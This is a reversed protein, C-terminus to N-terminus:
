CRGPNFFCRRCNEMDSVKSTKVLGFAFNIVTPLLFIIVGAIVRTILSKTSKALEDDNSAIVAKFYDIVGFLILLIPVVVKAAFLLSGFFHFVQRVKEEDCFDNIKSGEEGGSGSGGGGTSKDVNNCDINNNEPFSCNGSCFYEYDEKDEGCAFSFQSPNKSYTSNIITTSHTKTNYLIDQCTKSVDSANVESFTGDPYYALYLGDYKTTLTGSPGTYTCSWHDKNNTIQSGDCKGTCSSAGTRLTYIITNNKDIKDGAEGFKIPKNDKNTVVRGPCDYSSDTHMFGHKKLTANSADGFIGINDEVNGSDELSAKDILIHYDGNYVCYLSVSNDDPSDNDIIKVGNKTEKALVTPSALIGILLILVLYIVKKM